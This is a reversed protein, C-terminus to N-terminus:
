SCNTGSIYTSSVPLLRRSTYISNTREGTSKASGSYRFLKKGDCCFLRLVENRFRQGCIAYVFFNVCFSAFFWHRAINVATLLWPPYQKLFLFCFLLLHYPLNFVLFVTSAALLMKTTKASTNARAHTSRIRMSSTRDSLKQQFNNQQRHQNHLKKINDESSHINSKFYNHNVTLFPRQQILHLYENNGNSSMKSHNKKSLSQYAPRHISTLKFQSAGVTDSKENTSSINSSNSSKPPYRPYPLTMKKFTLKTHLKYVIALNMITIASFPFLFTFFTDIVLFPFLLAKNKDEECHVLYTQNNRPKTTTVPFSLSYFSCAFVILAFALIRNTRQKLFTTAKIPFFVAILRHSTYALTFNSSLFSAIHSFYITLLCTMANLVPVNLEDLLAIVLILIFILDTIALCTLFFSSRLSRLRRQSVFVIITTANGLVGTIAILIYYALAFRNQITPSSSSEGM